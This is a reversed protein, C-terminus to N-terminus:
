ESTEIYITGEKDNFGIEKVNLVVSRNALKVLIKVGNPKNTDTMARYAFDIQEKFEELRM